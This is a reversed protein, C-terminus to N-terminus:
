LAGLTALLAGLAESAGADVPPMGDLMTCGVYLPLGDALTTLPDLPKGETM